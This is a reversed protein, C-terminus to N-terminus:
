KLVGAYRRKVEDIVVEIETLVDAFVEQFVDVQQRHVTSELTAIREKLHAIQRSYVEIDAYAAELLRSKDDHVERYIRERETQLHSM